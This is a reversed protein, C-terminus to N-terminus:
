RTLAPLTSRFRCFALSTLLAASSLNVSDSALLTKGLDIVCKIESEGELRYVLPPTILVVEFDGSFCVRGNLRRRQAASSALRDM